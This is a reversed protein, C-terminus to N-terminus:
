QFGPATVKLNILDSHIVHSSTCYRLFEWGNEDENVNM